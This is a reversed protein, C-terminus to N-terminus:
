KVALGSMRRENRLRAPSGSNSSGQSHVPANPRVYKTYAKRSRLRSKQGDLLPKKRESRFSHPPLRLDGAPRASSVAQAKRRRNGLSPQEWHFIPLQPSKTIRAAGSRWRGPTRRDGNWGPASNAPALPQNTSTDASAHELSPARDFTVLVPGSPDSDDIFGDRSADDSGSLPPGNSCSTSTAGSPALRMSPETSPTSPSASARLLLETSAAGSGFTSPAGDSAADAESVTAEGQM